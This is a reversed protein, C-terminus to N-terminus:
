DSGNLVERGKRLGEMEGRVREIDGELFRIARAARSLVDVKSMRRSSKNGGGVGGRGNDHDHDRHHDHDPHGGYGYDDDGHDGYPIGEPLVDLLAEFRAHLRHRYQQEVLNHNTRARQHEPSEGPKPSSRPPRKFRRAATRLTPGNNNIVETSPPAPAPPSPKKRTATKTTTVTTTAKPTSSAKIRKPPQPSRSQPRKTPPNPLSQQPINGGGLSRAPNPPIAHEFTSEPYPENPLTPIPIHGAWPANFGSPIGQPASRTTPVGSYHHDLNVHFSSSGTWDRLGTDFTPPTIAGAAYLLRDLQNSFGGGGGDGVTPSIPSVPAWPGNVCPVDHKPWDPPSTAPATPVPSPFGCGYLPRQQQTHLYPGDVHSHYGQEQESTWPPPHIALPQTILGSPLFGDHIGDFAQSSPGNTSWIQDYNM